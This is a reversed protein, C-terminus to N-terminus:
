ERGGTDGGTERRNEEIVATNTEARNEETAATDTETRNEEAATMDADTKTESGKNQSHYIEQYVPCSELLEDHTGIGAIKGHELVIIQDAHQLSSTRQAVIFVTMKGISAQGSLGGTGQDALSKVERCALQGAHRRYNSINKRMAADTAYDLASSSDDLILIEPRRVLARAITLRQKQGGSFNRGGQEAKYATGEPKEMVFDYACAARLAAEVEADSADKKGWCINERITGAFLQAQQLVIGIKKRLEPLTYETTPRGDVYVEGQQREYFGAILHVLTSKGAGTGGIIGVTEGEKVSFSIDTLANGAGAAYAFSVNEFRVKDPRRGSESTKEEPREKEPIQDALRKEALPQGGPREKEPIREMPEEGPLELVTVVRKACAIAKTLTVILNAFKILEVLVQSMYNVLAVVEGQTLAGIYTQRGGAMLVAVIGLNVIVFTVPNLLGAIRGVGLQKESLGQNEDSFEEEMQEEKGFARIVRVGTLSERTKGLMRDLRGQVERYRPINHRMILYVVVALAPIVVVFILAMKADIFFAMVMAGFVVFPSRLLLRLVMNVGTQVQNVDSTMRTVLTATGTQDLTLFSFSQIKEFLAKRLKAAFGSAAVASFYQATVSVGLGAAALIVLMLCRSRVFPMDAQAIGVDIIAAMIVPVFLELVAEAMKFAPALVTQMKYDKLYNWLLKM